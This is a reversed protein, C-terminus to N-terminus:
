AREFDSKVVKGLDVKLTGTQSYLIFKNKDTQHFVVNSITGMENPIKQDLRIKETKM